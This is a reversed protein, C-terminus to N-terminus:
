EFYRSFPRARLVLEQPRVTGEAPRAAANLPRVKKPKRPLPANKALVNLSVVYSMRPVM